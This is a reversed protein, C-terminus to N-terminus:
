FILGVFFGIVAFFCIVAFITLKKWENIKMIIWYMLESWFNKFMNINM